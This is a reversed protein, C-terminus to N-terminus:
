SVARPPRGFQTRTVYVRLLTFQSTAIDWWRSSRFVVRTQKVKEGDAAFKNYAKM